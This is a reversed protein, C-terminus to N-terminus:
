QEKDTDQITDYCDDAVAGMFEDNHFVAVIDGNEGAFVVCGNEMCGIDSVNAIHIVGSINKCLVKYNRM